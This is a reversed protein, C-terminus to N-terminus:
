VIDINKLVENSGFSKYVLKGHSSKTSDSKNETLNQSSLRNSTLNYTKKIDPKAKNFGSNSAHFM